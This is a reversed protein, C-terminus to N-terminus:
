QAAKANVSGIWPQNARMEMGICLGLGLGLVLVLALCLVWVRVWLAKSQCARKAAEENVSGKVCCQCHM